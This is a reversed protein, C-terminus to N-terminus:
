PHNIWIHKTKDIVVGFFIATVGKAHANLANRHEFVPNVINPEKKVVIYSKQFLESHLQTSKKISEYISCFTHFYTISPQAFVHCTLNRHFLKGFAQCHRSKLHIANFIKM